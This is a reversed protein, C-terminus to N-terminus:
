KQTQPKALDWYHEFIQRIFTALFPNKIETGIQITNAWNNSINVVEDVVTIEPMITLVDRSIFRLNYYKSYEPIKSDTIIDSEFNEIARCMIGRNIVEQRYKEAFAEGTTKAISGSSFIVVEQKAKLGNWLQQKMGAVGKYNKISFNDEQNRLNNLMPLLENLINRKELVEVEQEAVLLELTSPPNASEILQDNGTTAEHVIGKDILSDVIRYVNSRAIGTNRSLELHNKSGKLLSEYILAEDSTLGLKELHSTTLSINKM